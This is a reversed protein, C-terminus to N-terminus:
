GRICLQRAMENLQLCQNRSITLQENHHAWPALLLLQGRMCAEMRRGGPKALETFGNEQLIILPLGEEFAARMVHKEGKSICPSVLVAGMRTQSLYYATVQEIQEDTLRRSCQVQVLLPRNLLFRNGIASFQLAGVTLGRQVRFLDPRERKMLLRRPNDRLYDLWRQLQGERLLIKDNYGHAFLLGRSRSSSQPSKPSQQPVAFSEVPRPSSSAPCSSSSSPRSASFAAAAEPFLERYAKNCGQKFGLLIKGMPRDLKERIFLIGHLHDPMLQLAILEVEPHVVSIQHWCDEVKKGLPSLEMRPADPSGAPADSRGLVKGFLPCRDETVMTIMYMRRATYDNSPCRRQMSPIKEKWLPNRPQTAESKMTAFTVIGEKAAIASYSKKLPPQTKQQLVAFNKSQQPVAFSMVLSALLCSLSVVFLVVLSIVSNNVQKDM